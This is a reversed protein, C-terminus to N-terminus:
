QVVRVLRVPLGFSKYRDNGLLSIVGGTYGVPMIGASEGQDTSSWYNGEAGIYAVTTGEQRSGAYPLFVAGAAEMDSWTVSTINSYVNNYQSMGYTFSGDVSGDWDDPLIIMGKVGMVTGIGFPQKSQGNVNIRRYSNSGTLNILYFWENYDLTKWGTYSNNTLSHTFGSNDWTYLSNDTSINIPNNNGTWTGWGFLDIWETSSSTYQASVDVSSFEDYYAYEDGNALIYANYEAETVEIYDADTYYNDGGGDIYAEYTEEDVEIYDGAVEDWIYYYITEGIYYTYTTILQDETVCLDYQNPAFRWTNSSPQYQLNGSSFKATTHSDISFVHDVIPTEMDIVIGSTIYDNEHIAPVDVIYKYNGITVIADEVADQPLLIAWKETASESYLKITGTNEATTIANSPDEYSVNARIKMGDVSVQADTGQTLTFKVLACKNLLTCSYTTTEDSYKQTSHNYSLVPLAGNRQSLYVCFQKTIGTRMIMFGSSTYGTSNYSKPTLNGVFYFHLYDDTSPDTIDGSFAGDAYDLAGVYAGNNGVYIKDGDSFVVAGTGPYVIHKDGNDVNLTIHVVRGSEPAITEVKKKCQSFSLLLAVAIIITNLKKM